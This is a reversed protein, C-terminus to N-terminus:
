LFWSSQINRKRWEKTLRNCYNTISNLSFRTHGPGVGYLCELSSVYKSTHWKTSSCRSYWICTERFQICFLRLWLSIQSSKLWCYYLLSLFNGTIFSKTGDIPDLVWVYDTNKEKCRWGNEEGYSCNLPFGLNLKLRCFWGDQQM